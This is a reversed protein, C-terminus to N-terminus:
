DWGVIWGFDLRGEMGWNRQFYMNPRIKKWVMRSVWGWWIRGDYHFNIGVHYSWILGGLVEM